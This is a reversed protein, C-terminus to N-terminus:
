TRPPADGDFFWHWVEQHASRCATLWDSAANLPEGLYCFDRDGPAGVHTRQRWSEAYNVGYSSDPDAAVEKYAVRFPTGSLIKRYVADTAAAAPLVAQKALDRDVELGRLVALMAKLAKRTSLVGDLFPEKTLQLDRHYGAGVGAYIEAVQGAYGRCRTATARIIELADPNKKHPMISSGTATEQSLRVIETEDRSFDILDRALRASDTLISAAVNLVLAESRGRDNQVALTNRQIGGFGLRQAVAARDLDVAVGYGAASGLPSRNVHKYAATLWPLHDLFGEAYGACFHGFTTTMAQRSHTRGSISTEAHEVALDGLVNVIEILDATVEVLQERAWLRLAAIVQDNRSRGTHIRRGADGLKDTLRNEIETHCDEHDPSIAFEGAIADAAIARLEEQLRAFESASLLDIGQLMAAHAASALADYPVLHLDWQPDRGVTLEAVSRDFLHGRDWLRM